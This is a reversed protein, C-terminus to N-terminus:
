KISTPLWAHENSHLCLAQTCHTCPTGDAGAADPLGALVVVSRIPKGMKHAGISDGGNPLDTVFLWGLPPHTTTTNRAGKEIHARFDLEAERRQRRALTPPWGLFAFSHDV